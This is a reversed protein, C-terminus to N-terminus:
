VSQFYILFAIVIERIRCKLSVKKPFDAEFDQIWSYDQFSEGMHNDSKTYIQSIIVFLKSCKDEM